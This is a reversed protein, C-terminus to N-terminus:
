DVYGVADTGARPGGQASLAIPAPEASTRGVTVAGAGALTLAVVGIATPLSPLRRFSRVQRLPRETRHAGPTRDPVPNDTATGGAAPRRRSRHEARHLAVPM